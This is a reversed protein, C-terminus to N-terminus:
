QVPEGSNGSGSTVGGHIHTKLSVTGAIIDGGTSEINGAATISGDAKIDGGAELSGSIKMDGTISIDEGLAIRVSGDCSQIVLKEAEDSQVASKWLMDPIFLGDSWDHTRYSVPASLAVEGTQEVTGLFGSIDTDNFIVWGTDGEKVPIRIVFGGGGPALVPVDELLPDAVTENNGLKLTVAPQVSVRNRAPDYSKVIAPRCVKLGKYWQTQKWAETSERDAAEAVAYISKTGYVNAKAM